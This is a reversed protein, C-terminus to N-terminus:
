AREVGILVSNVFRYLDKLEELLDMRHSPYGSGAQGLVTIANICCFVACQLISDSVLFSKVHNIRFTEPILLFAFGTNKEEKERWRYFHNVVTIFVVTM